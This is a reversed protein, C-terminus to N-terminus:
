TRQQPPWAPPEACVGVAQGRSVLPGILESRVRPDGIYRPDARVDDVIQGQRHTFVWGSIGRREGNPGAFRHDHGRARSPVASVLEDVAPRAPPHHAVCRARACLVVLTRDLLQQLDLITHFEPTLESLISLERSTSAVDEEAALQHRASEVM